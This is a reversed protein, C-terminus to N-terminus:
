ARVKPKKDKKDKKKGDLDLLGCGVCRGGVMVLAGDERDWMTYDGVGDLILAGDRADEWTMAGCSCAGSRSLDAVPRKALSPLVQTRDECGCDALGWGPPPARFLLGICKGCNLHEVRVTVDVPRVTVMGSSLTVNLMGRDPLLVMDMYGCDCIM